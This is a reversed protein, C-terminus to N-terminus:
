TNPLYDLVFESCSLSRGNITLFDATTGVLQFGVKQLVRVSAPNNDLVQANLRKLRFQEKAILILQSLCYSAIGQSTFDKAVRYGVYASDTSIDKLNARAVIRDNKVLVSSYATGHRMQTLLRDIHLDVGDSSYFDCGRPEILSEFWQRNQEEFKLLQASHSKSLTEFNM